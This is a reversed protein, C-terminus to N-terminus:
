SKAKRKKEGAAVHKSEVHPFHGIFESIYKGKVIRNYVGGFSEANVLENYIGEPVDNHVYLDGGDM